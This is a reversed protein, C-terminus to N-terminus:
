GMEDAFLMRGHKSAAFKIGEKQFDYLKDLMPISNIDKVEDDEYDLTIKRGDDNKFSLKTYEVKERMQIVLDSFPFIAVRGRGLKNYENVADIIKEYNEFPALWLTTETDM